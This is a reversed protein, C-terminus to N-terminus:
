DFRGELSAKLREELGHRDCFCRWMCAPKETDKEVYKCPVAACELEDHKRYDCRWYSTARIRVEEPLVSDTVRHVTKM